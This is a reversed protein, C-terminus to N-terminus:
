KKQGRLVINERLHTEMDNEFFADFHRPYAFTYTRRIFSACKRWERKIQESYENEEEIVAKGM